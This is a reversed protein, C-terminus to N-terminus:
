PGQTIVDYVAQARARMAPASSRSAADIEAQMQARAQTDAGQAIQAAQAPSVRLLIGPTPTAISDAARQEVRPGTSVTERAQTAASGGEILKSAAYSRIAETQGTESAQALLLRANKQSQPSGSTMNTALADMRARQDPTIDKFDKSLQAVEANFKSATEKALKTKAPDFPDSRMDDLNYHTKATEIAQAEAEDKSVKPKTIIATLNADDVSKAPGAAKAMSPLEIPKGTYNGEYRMDTNVQKVVRNRGEELGAARARFSTLDDAGLAGSLVEMDKDSSMGQTGQKTLIKLRRELVKLRQYEDSNGAASEGGSKDRIEMAEDMINAIEVAAAMKTGLARRTEKDPAHWTTGDQQVLPAARNLVPEGKDDTIMRGDADKQVEPPAPMGLEQDGAKQAAAAKAGTKDGMADIKATEILEDRADKKQQYVFQKGALALHGGAIGTNAQANALQGRQMDRNFRAEASTGLLQNARLDLEAAANMANLKAKPNAYKAATAELQDATRKYEEALKLTGAERMSGTQKEYMDMSNRKRDVVRGLQERERVQANVDDKIADMILTIAPNPGNRHQLADGLGSLIVSIGALVKRGTSLDNWRRGDDIKYKAEESTAKDYDAHLKALGDAREQAQKAQDDRIGQARANRDEIDKANQDAEQAALDGSATAIAKEQGLAGTVGATAKVLQGEPSADYAAQAASQKAQGRTYAANQRANQAGFTATSPVQYDAGNQVPPAPTAGMDAPPTQGMVHALVEPPLLQSLDRPGAEPPPADMGAGPAGALEDTVPPPIAGDPLYIPGVATQIMGM